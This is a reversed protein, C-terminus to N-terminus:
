GFCTYLESLWSHISIPVSQYDGLMQFFTSNLPWGFRLGSILFASFHYKWNQWYSSGLISSVNTYSYHQKIWKGSVISPVNGETEIYSHDYCTVQILISLGCLRDWETGRSDVMSLIRYSSVELSLSLIIWVASHFWQTRHWKLLLSWEQKLSVRASEDEWISDVSLLLFM